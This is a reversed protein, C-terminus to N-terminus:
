NTDIGTLKPDLMALDNNIIGLQRFQFAIKAQDPQRPVLSYAVVVAILAVAALPLARKMVIVFRSYRQVDLISSRQQEGWGVRERQTPAPGLEQVLAESAAKRRAM